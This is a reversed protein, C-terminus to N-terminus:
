ILCVKIILQSVFTYDNLKINRITYKLNEAIASGDKRWFNINTLPYANITCNLTMSNFNVDLKSQIEIEPAVLKLFTQIKIKILFFSLKDGSKKLM